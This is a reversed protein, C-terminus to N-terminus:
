RGCTAATLRPLERDLTRAVVTNGLPRYHEVVLNGLSSRRAQEGLADTLDITAVGRARLLQVLPAHPKSERDREATIEGKWPFILVVPTAGDAQVQAAFSVLIEALVAFAEEGPRYAREAWGPTWDIGDQRGQRYRATRALRILEFRDLPNAVFTGPFYWSDDPGLNAEVWSPNKLEDPERVPSPLLRPRDGDLVYRPKALPIGTEPYYFPRFRNTVRNINEVMPGILVACPQWSRGDRQYRLWAQDPAYGPVGFNLVESRDLMEELRSTWCDDIEVEECYTFSDGYASLRRVNAPPTRPYDREARLGDGNHRYRVDGGFRNAGPTTTWGLEADFVVYAQGAALQEIAAQDYELPLRPQAVATGALRLGAEALAASIAFGVLIAGLRLLVARRTM